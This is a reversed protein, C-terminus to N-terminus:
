QASSASFDMDENIYCGTKRGKRKVIILEAQHLIKINYNITQPKKKLKKAINKQNVGPNKKIINIIEIQLDTLRFRQEKPFNMHKPYFARYRMGERRSKILETKELVRLHYSLTGNKVNIDRRIQNYHVGPNTKIYGYIQGRVFQDLVDEKQIRTYLPILLPLLTFLKYKGTETLAFLGFALASISTTSVAVPEKHEKVLFYSHLLHGEYMIEYQSKLIHTFGFRDSVNIIIHYTGSKRYVHTVQKTVNSYSQIIGDGWDIFYQNINESFLPENLSKFHISTQYENLSDISQQFSANSTFQPIPLDFVNSVIFVTEQLPIAVLVQNDIVEIISDQPLVSSNNKSYKLIIKDDSIRIAISDQPLEFIDYSSYKANELQTSLSGDDVIFDYFDEYEKITSQNDTLTLNYQVDIGSLGTHSDYSASVSSINFFLVSFLFFLIIFYHVVNIYKSNKKATKQMIEVIDRHLRISNIYKSVLKQNYFFYNSMPKM